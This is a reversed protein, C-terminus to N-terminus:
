NSPCRLCAPLVDNRTMTTPRPLTAVGVSLWKDAARSSTPAPTVPTTRGCVSTCAIDPVSRRLAPSQIAYSDAALSSCRRKTVEDDRCDCASTPSEPSTVRIGPTSWRHSSSSADVGCNECGDVVPVHAWCFPCDGSPVAMVGSILRASSTAACPCGPPQFDRVKPPRLRGTAASGDDDDDSVVSRLLNKALCADEACSDSRHRRSNTASSDRNHKFSRRQNGAHVNITM